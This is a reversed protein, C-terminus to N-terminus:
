RIRTVSKHLWPVIGEMGWVQWYDGDKIEVFFSDYDAAIDGLLEKIPQVDQSDSVFLLEKDLASVLKHEEVPILHSHYPKGVWQWHNSM